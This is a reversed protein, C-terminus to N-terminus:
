SINTKPMPPVPCVITEGPAMADIRLYLGTQEADLEADSFCQDLDMVVTDEGEDFPDLALHSHVHTM